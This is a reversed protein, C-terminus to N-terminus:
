TSGSFYLFFDMPRKFIRRLRTLLVNIVSIMGRSSLNKAFLVLFAQNRNPPGSAPPASIM